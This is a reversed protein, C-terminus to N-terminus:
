DYEDLILVEFPLGMLFTFISKANKDKKSLAKKSFNAKNNFDILYPLLNIKQENTLMYQVLSREGNEIKNIQMINTERVYDIELELTGQANTRKHTFHFLIIETKNKSDYNQEYEVIYNKTQM